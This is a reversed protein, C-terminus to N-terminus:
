RKDNNAEQTLKDITGKYADLFEKLFINPEEMDMDIISQLTSNKADEFELNGAKQEEICKILASIKDAAKILKKEYETLDEMYLAKEYEHIFDVPLMKLLRDTATKEVKKYASKIEDNLYKVPTPMDGTIIESVDHYLSYTAMKETNLNKGLRINGIHGLCHSIVSVEYSHESLNEERTNRMLAWRNIYKMKSLMAFFGQM